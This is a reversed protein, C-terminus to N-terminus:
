NGTLFVTTQPREVIADAGSAVSATDSVLLEREQDSGRSRNGWPLCCSFLKFPTIYDSGLLPQQGREAQSEIDGKQDIPFTIVSMRSLSDHTSIEKSDVTIAVPQPCFCSAFGNAIKKGIFGFFTVAGAGIFSAVVCLSIDVLLAITSHGTLYTVLTSTTEINIKDFIFALPSLGCAHLILSVTVGLIILGLLLGLTLIAKRHRQWFSPERHGPATKLAERVQPLHQGLITIAADNIESNDDQENEEVALTQMVRASEGLQCLYTNSRSRSFIDVFVSLTGRDNVAAFEIKRQEFQERLDYLDVKLRALLADQNPDNYVSQVDFDQNPLGLNISTLYTRIQERQQRNERLSIEAFIRANVSNARSSIIIEQKQLNRLLDVAVNQLETKIPQMHQILNHTRAVIRQHAHEVSLQFIKKAAQPQLDRCLAKPVAFILGDPLVIKSLHNQSCEVVRLLDVIARQSRSVLVWDPHLYGEIQYAGPACPYCRVDVMREGQKIPHCLQFFLVTPRGYLTQFWNFLAVSEADTYLLQKLNTVRQLNRMHKAHSADHEGPPPAEAAQFLPVLAEVIGARRHSKEHGLETTLWQAFSESHAVEDAANTNLYTTLKKQYDAISHPM